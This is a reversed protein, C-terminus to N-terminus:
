WDLVDDIEGDNWLRLWIDALETAAELRVPKPFAKHWPLGMDMESVYKKAGADVLYMWLKVSLEHDYTGNNMKRALNKYIPVTQSRYLDGENEIYMVLDEADVDWGPSEEEEPVFGSNPLDEEYDQGKIAKALRQFGKDSIGKKM